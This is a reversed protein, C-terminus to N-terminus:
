GPARRRGGQEVEFPSATLGEIGSVALEVMQLREEATADGQAVKHPPVATPMLRVEDLGLANKVENAVILHGIHPPNFTGGLIGVKKM